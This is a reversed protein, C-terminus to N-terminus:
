KKKGKDMMGIIRLFVRRKGENFMTQLADPMQECVSSSKFNCFSELDKYVIEIAKSKASFVQRYAVQKEKQLRETEKKKIEDETM